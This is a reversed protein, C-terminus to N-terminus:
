LLPLQPDQHEPPDIALREVLNEKSLTMESALRRVHRFKVVRTGDQLWAQIRPDRRAKEAVLAARGGPLVIRAEPATGESVMESLEATERVHYAHVRRGAEDYWGLPDQGQVQYGLRRGLDKLSQLMETCDRERAEPEDEPRLRWLGREEQYIAYSRLCARVVRRAPTLVGPLAQCIHDDLELDTM